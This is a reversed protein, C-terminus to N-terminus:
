MEIYPINEWYLIKDRGMNDTKVCQGLLVSADDALSMADNIQESSADYGVNDIVFLVVHKIVSVLLQMPDECTIGLCERGYMGRGSYKRVEYDQDINLERVVENIIRQIKPLKNNDM